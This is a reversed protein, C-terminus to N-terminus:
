DGTAEDGEFPPTEKQAEELANISEQQTQLRQELEAIYAGQKIITIHMNSITDGAMKLELQERTVTQPQQETPTNNM